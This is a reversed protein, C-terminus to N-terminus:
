FGKALSIHVRGEDLAKLVEDIFVHLDQLGSRIRFAGNRTMRPMIHGVLVSSCISSNRSANARKAVKDAILEGRGFFIIQVNM